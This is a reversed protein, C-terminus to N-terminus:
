QLPFALIYFSCLLEAKCSARKSHRQNLKSVEYMTTSRTTRKGTILGVPEGRDDKSLAIAPKHVTCYINPHELMWATRVRGPLGEYETYGAYTACCVDRMNGDLIVANGCGPKDCTHGATVIATLWQYMTCDSYYLRDAGLKMSSSFVRTAIEHLRGRELGEREGM